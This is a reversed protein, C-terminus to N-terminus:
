RRASRDTALLAFQAHDVWRGNVWEAQRALGEFRLGLRAIVGLSPHNTTAAACRIRHLGVRDFGFDLVAHCAETMLGQGTSDPRLWYGLDASRHLHVCNDLGIVGLLRHDLTSRVSFRLARGADWDAVCAQVYRETATPSDTFPVWPLWPVLTPRSAEIAEWLDVGDTFSIPSLALRETALPHRVLATRSPIALGPSVSRGAPAADSFRDETSAM